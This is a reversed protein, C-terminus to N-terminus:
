SSAGTRYPLQEPRWHPLAGYCLGMKAPMLPLMLDQVAARARHSPGCRIELKTERIARPTCQIGDPTQGLPQLM